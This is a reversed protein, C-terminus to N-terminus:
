EIEQMTQMMPPTYSPNWFLHIELIEFCGAWLCNWYLHIELIEFCGATDVISVTVFDGQYGIWCLGLRNM